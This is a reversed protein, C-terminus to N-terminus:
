HDVGGVVRLSNCFAIFNDKQAAVAEDPGIMKVFISKEGLHRAVGLLRSNENAGGSMGQYTGAVDLVPIEEGLVKTKPMADIEESSLAPQGLQDQWRNINAEMGGAAGGLLTVYCQVGPGDTITFNGLRMSTKGADEWGEPVDWEFKVTTPHGAPLEAPLTHSDSFGFREASTLVAEDATSEAEADHGLHDSHEDKQEAPQAPVERGEKIDGSNGCSVFALITLSLLLYRM